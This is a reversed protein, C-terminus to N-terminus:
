PQGWPKVEVCLWRRVYNKDPPISRSIQVKAAICDDNTDYQYDRGGVSCTGDGFCLISLLIFVSM